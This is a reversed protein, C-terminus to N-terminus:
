ELYRHCQCMNSCKTSVKSRQFMNPFMKLWLFHGFFLPFKACLWVTLYNSIFEDVLDIDHTFSSKGHRRWWISVNEANSAMQAPFEGTVPSNGACLGTVSLKSTKKSRRRFLCKLLRDLRRHNSVGNHENYRWQLVVSGVAYNSYKKRALIPLSEVNEHKLLCQFTEGCNDSRCMSILGMEVHQLSILINILEDGRSCFPRWKPLRCKWIYKRSHFHYFESEFQNGPAWKLILFCQTM